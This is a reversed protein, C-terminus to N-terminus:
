SDSVSRGRNWRLGAGETALGLRDMVRMSYHALFTRFDEGGLYFAPIPPQLIAGAWALKRLNDAQIASIPTERYGLILPWGEKLAVAGARHILTKGTGHALAGATAASCPLVVAGSLRYSGSAIRADLQNDKHVLLKARAADDVVSSDILAEAGTTGGEVEHGIVLAAASSVVLHLREVDPHTLMQALLHRPLAMGSAGSVLLAFRAAM